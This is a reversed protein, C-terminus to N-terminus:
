GKKGESRTLKTNSIGGLLVGDGNREVACHCRAVDAVQVLVAVGALLENLDNALGWEDLVDGALVADFDTTEGDVARALANDDVCSDVVQELASRSLAQLVHVQGQAVTFVIANRVLHVQMKLCYAKHTGRLHSPM